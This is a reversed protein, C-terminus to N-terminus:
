RLKGGGAKAILTKLTEENTTLVLTQKDIFAYLFVITGQPNFAARADKNRIVVDKFVIRNQLADATTSGVNALLERTHVGFLPGVDDLITAEFVLMAPFASDYSSVNFLLFPQGGRFGHLGLVPASGLARVLASPTSAELLTFLHQTTLASESVTVPIVRLENQPVSLTELSKRLLAIAGVRTEKGQLAVAATTKPKEQTAPPVMPPPTTRLAFYVGIGIGIVVAAVAFVFAILRWNWGAQLPLTNGISFIKARPPTGDTAEQ